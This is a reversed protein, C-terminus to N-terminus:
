ENFDADTTNLVVDAGLKKLEPIYEAKRVFSISRLGEEKCLGIIM